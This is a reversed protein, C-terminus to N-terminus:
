LNNIKELMSFVKNEPIGYRKAFLQLKDSLKDIRFSLLDLQKIAKDSVIDEREIRGNKGM